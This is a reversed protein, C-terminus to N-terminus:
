FSFRRSLNLLPKELYRYCLQGCILVGVVTISLIVVNDLYGQWAFTKWIRGCISLVLIHTLYISYSHDGIRIVWAPAVWQKTRELAVAGYVMLTFPVAFLYVRTWGMVDITETNFSFFHWLIVLMLIGVTLCYKAYPYIKVNEIAGPINEPKTNGWKKNMWLALLCGVIFEATVPSFAFRLYQNQEPDFPNVHRFGEIVVALWILLLVPLYKRPLLLLFVFVVYFYMEHVLSWGVMLLPLGAQPLLLLSHIVFSLDFHNLNLFTSHNLYIVLVASTVLWYLPYIRSLRFYFFRCAERARNHLSSIVPESTVTVMIFGSIVFFLDVGSIGIRLFVPLLVDFQSYKIEVALLHLGVVLLVAFARLAQINNLKSQMPYIYKLEHCFAVFRCHKIM